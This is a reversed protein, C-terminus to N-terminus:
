LRNYRIWVHFFLLFGYNKSRQKQLKACPINRKDGATLCLIEKRGAYSKREGFHLHHCYQRKRQLRWQVHGCYARCLSHGFDSGCSGRGGYVSLCYLHHRWLSHAAQCDGHYMCFGVLDSFPQRAHSSSVTFILPSLGIIKRTMSLPSIRGFLLITVAGVCWVVAVGIFLGGFLGSFTLLSEIGTSALLSAMSLFVVLPIAKVIVKLTVIAFRFVFDICEVAGKAKDGMKNLILGFFIALFMVQLIKDGKFPEVLDRPVIDFVMDKLSGYQVAAANGAAPAIGAQMYSLDGAFLLMGLGLGLLATIVQMLLSVVVMRGGLKGILAADSINTIGAIIAFFTVPAMMMHLANLFVNRVPAILSDNIIKIVEAGLFAQMFLGCLCGLVLGGLTYILQRKTSDLEHVKITVINLGNKRVYSMKQRNAKLIALQYADAEAEDVPVETVAPIPNYEEGKAWLRLETDGWMRRLTIRISFDAGAEMGKKFRFFMEELLLQARTIEKAPIGRQKLEDALQQRGQRLEQETITCINKEM